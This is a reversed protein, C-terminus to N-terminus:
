PTLINKFKTFRADFSLKITGTEGNRHKGIIVDSKGKDPSDKNYYEDRYLFMVIDADQEISGSERLDSLVPRKDQRSEVARSLQSLAIVPVNFEKAIGKLGRTIKSVEEARNSKEKEVEILQLYDIIILGLDENEMKLKKCKARIETLTQSPKDDIYIPTEQIKTTSTYIKSWDSEELMGTKYKGLNIESDSFIMRLGLQEKSMELSFVATQINKNATYQAINLAFSTKGMGPRAAIIILDSNQFGGTLSDLDDFGSPIGIVQKHRNEYNSEINNLINMSFNNFHMLSSQISASATNFILKEATNLIDASDIEKYSLNTIETGLKIFKRLRHKEAIIQAHYEINASTIVDFALDNIAARGGIAKLQGKKSLNESVTLVDIPENNKFLELISSYIQQNKKIFFSEPQIIDIIKTIASDHSILSGLVEKEAELSHPAIKDNATDNM